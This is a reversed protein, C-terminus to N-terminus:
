RTQYLIFQCNFDAIYSPIDINCIRVINHRDLDYSTFVVKGVPNHIFAARQCLCYEPSDYAVLYHKM